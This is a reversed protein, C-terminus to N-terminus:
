GSPSLAVHHLFLRVSAAGDNVIHGCRCPGRNDAASQRNNRAGPLGHDDASRASRNGHGCMGVIAIVLGPIKLGFVLMWGLAVLKGLTAGLFLSAFFLGGRFGSGISIASPLLKLCILMMLVPVTYYADDGVIRSFV